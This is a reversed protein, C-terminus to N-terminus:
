LREGTMVEFEKILRRCIEIDQLIRKKVEKKELAKRYREELSVRRNEMILKDALCVLVDERCLTDPEQEFGRHAGTVAALALYGKEELFKRVAKEHFPELRLLDHLCGGSRCLEIDLFAGAETLRRAMWAALDGVAMCHARIHAPLNVEDYLKECLQPSIGRYKRAYDRIHALDKQDDADMQAGADATEVTKTKMAGFAGQLGRSGQYDLAKQCGAPFLFPPHFTKGGSAPIMAEAEPEAALIGERLKQFTGPSTLPIDGPLFFVGQRRDVAELGLKVSALMDTDQWFPNEVIKVELAKLARRVEEGRYGVVVTIDRIGANEMSKVTMAIMPFGNIELLPKFGEMRRSRGAAAILGAGKM